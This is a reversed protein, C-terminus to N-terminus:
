AHVVWLVAKTTGYRTRIRVASFDPSFIRQPHGPHVLAFPRAPSEEDEGALGLEIVQHSAGKVEDRQPRVQRSHPDTGAKNEVVFFLPREVWGVDLAAWEETLTLERRYLQEDSFLVVSFRDKGGGPIALPGEGFKQYYVSDVVTLRGVPTLKEQPKDYQFHLVPSPGPLAPSLPTPGGTERGPGRLKKMLLDMPQAAQPLLVDAQINPMRRNQKRPPKAPTGENGDQKEGRDTDEAM